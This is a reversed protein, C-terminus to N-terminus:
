LCASIILAGVIHLSGAFLAYAVKGQKTGEDLKLGVSAKLVFRVMWELIFLIVFSIASIALADWLWLHDSSSISSALIYGQAFLKMVFRTTVALNGKKIEEVDKYNTFLSDVYMLIFLLVAGAGTWILIGLVNSLTLAM